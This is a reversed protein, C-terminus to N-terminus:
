WPFGENQKEDRDLNQYLKFDGPRVKIIPSSQSPKAVTDESKLIQFIQKAKKCITFFSESM